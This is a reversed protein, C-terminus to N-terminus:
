VKKIRKSVVLKEEAIKLLREKLRREELELAVLYTKDERLSKNEVISSKIFQEVFAM